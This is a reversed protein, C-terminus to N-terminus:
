PKTRMFSEVKSKFEDLRYALIDLEGQLYAYRIVVVMRYAVSSKPREKNYACYVQHATVEGRLWAIALDIEENSIELKHKQVQTKAIKAKELLTM